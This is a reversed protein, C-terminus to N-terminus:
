QMRILLPQWRQITKLPKQITAPDGPYMWNQLVDKLMYSGYRTSPPNPNDFLYNSGLQKIFQLTFDLQFNKYRISNNLGGYYKPATNVVAILDNQFDPNYTPDGKSDAFQYAGSQSNIGILHFMRRITVPQGIYYYSAYSSAELNQFTVLKNQPLSINASSKWEFKDLKM